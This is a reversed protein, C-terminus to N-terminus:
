DQKKLITSILNKTKFSGENDIIIIEQPQYDQNILSILTYKLFFDRKKTLIIVTFNIKYKM